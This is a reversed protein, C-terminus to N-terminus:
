RRCGPCYMRYGTMGGRQSQRMQRVCGCHPCYDLEDAAPEGREDKEQCSACRESNPFIELREASIVEGCGDCLKAEGWDGEVEDPAVSLTLSGCSSCAFKTLSISWLEALLDADPEANRKLMNHQGLKEIMQDRQFLQEQDCARCRLLSPWPEKAM